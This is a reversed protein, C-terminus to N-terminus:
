GLTPGALHRLGPAWDKDRREKAPRPPTKVEWPNEEAAGAGKM